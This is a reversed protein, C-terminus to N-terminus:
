SFIYEAALDLLIRRTKPDPGPPPPVTVTAQNTDSEIEAVQNSRSNDDNTSEPIPRDGDVDGSANESKEWHSDLQESEVQQNAESKTNGPKKLNQAARNLPCNPDGTNNDAM